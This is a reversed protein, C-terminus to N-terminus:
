LQYRNSVFDLWDDCWGPRSMSARVHAVFAQHSFAKFAARGSFLKDWDTRVDAVGTRQLSRLLGSRADPLGGNREDYALSSVVLGLKSHTALGEALAQQRFLQYGATAAPCWQLSAGWDFVGDLHDWYRRQKITHQGCLGTPDVRLASLDHCTAMRQDDALQKRISCAYFNHETFKVETLVVGRAGGKLTVEFAVDPSTQNMGRAGDTEGLLKPPRLDEDAHEWELEVAEVTAISDDVISALFGAVLRRGESTQGFPFYLNAALTWSSLLNDRGTHPQISNARLYAGLPFLGGDQIGSWLNEQQHQRPLIHEYQRKQWWGHGTIHPLHKTRWALQATHMEDRFKAM